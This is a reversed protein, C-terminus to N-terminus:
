EQMNEVLLTAAKERYGSKCLRDYYHWSVDSPPCRKGAFYWASAHYGQKPLSQSLRLCVKEM